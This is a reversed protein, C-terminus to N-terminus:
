EVDSAAFMKRYERPSIGYEKKFARFFSSYDCFGCSIAVEEMSNGDEIQIKSNILRRQTVYHYFSVGIKSQFLKGLTSTSIHFIDAVSELTIKGSYNYEIYSLIKDIDEQKEALFPSETSVIARCIHAILSTTSGLLAVAGYSDTAVAEQLGRKFYTELYKYPSNETRLIFLEKAKLYRIMEKPCFALLHNVFDTSIWLVIRSYPVAMTSYFLPRHSVGPPLLIIDGPHIQYRKDSILYQLDGSEVFIIEFFNHSHLQVTEPSFSVDRHTNVFPSDMELEQYYNQNRTEMYEVVMSKVESNMVVAELEARSLSAPDPHIGKEKILEFIERSESIKM